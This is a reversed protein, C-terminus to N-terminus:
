FVKSNYYIHIRHDEGDAPKEVFPKTITKGNVTLSDTEEIVEPLSGPADIDYPHSPLGDKSVIVHRPSPISNLKLIATVLRRDLLLRQSPIDNVFCMRHRNLEAYQSAKDIPFGGSYFGILCDCIPWDSVPKNLLMDNGFFVLDFLKTNELRQLIARMAKSKAKADMACIGVRIKTQNLDNGGPTSM